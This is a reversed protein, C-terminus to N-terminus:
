LVNQISVKCRINLSLLIPQEMSANISSIQASVTLSLVNKGRGKPGVNVCHSYGNLIMQELLLINHQKM